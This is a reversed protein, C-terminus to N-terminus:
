RRHLRQMCGQGRRAGGKEKVYTRASGQGQPHSELVYPYIDELHAEADRLVQIKTVVGKKLLKQADAAASRHEECM